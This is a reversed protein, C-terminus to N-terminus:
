SVSLPPLGRDEVVFGPSHERMGIFTDGSLPLNLIKATLRRLHERAGGEFRSAELCARTSGELKPLESFIPPCRFGKLFTKV